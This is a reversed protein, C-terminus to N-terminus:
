SITTSSSSAGSENLAALRREVEELRQRAIGAVQPALTAEVAGVSGRAEGVAERVLDLVIERGHNFAAAQAEAAEAAVRRAHAAARADVEKALRMGPVLLPIAWVATLLLHEAHRALPHLAWSVAILSAAAGLVVLRLGAGLDRWYMAGLLALLDLGVVVPYNELGGANVPRLLSLTALVTYIVAVASALVMVKPRAATGRRRIEAHAWYAGALVLVLAPVVGLFRLPMGVLDAGMLMAAILLAVPGPDRPRPPRAPDEPVEVVAEGVLLRISGGPPRQAVRADVLDVSVRGRLALESLRRRLEEEQYATLLTTGIGEAPTLRVHSSLDPHRNYDAAWECLVQGLYGASGETSERLRLKWADAFGYLVSGPQLSGLIPLMAQIADVVSSSGMAVANQGALLARRTNASHLEAWEADWAAQVRRLYGSLLIGCGVALILWAFSLVTLPQRIFVHVLLTAAVAAAPVLLGKLHCRFGAETALPVAIWVAANLSTGPPYPALSWFAVDASDILLRSTLGFREPKRLAIAQGIDLAVFAVLALRWPGTRAGGDPSAFQFLRTALRYTLFFETRAALLASLAHAHSGAEM